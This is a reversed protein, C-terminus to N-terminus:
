INTWLSIFCFCPPQVLMFLERVFMHGM